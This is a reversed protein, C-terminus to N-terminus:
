KRGAGLLPKPTRCAKLAPLLCGRCPEAPNQPAQIGENEGAAAGEGQPNRGEWLLRSPHNQSPLSPSKYRTRQTKLHPTGVQLGAAEPARPTPAGFNATGGWGAAGARKQPPGRRRVDTQGRITTQKLFHSKCTATTLPVLPEARARRRWLMRLRAPFPPPPAGPNLKPHGKGIPLIATNM